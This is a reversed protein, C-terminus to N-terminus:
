PCSILPQDVQNVHPYPYGIPTLKIESFYTYGYKIPVSIPQPIDKISVGIFLSDAM